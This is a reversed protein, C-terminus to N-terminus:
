KQMINTKFGYIDVSNLTMSLYKDIKVLNKKLIILKLKLFLDVYYYKYYQLRLQLFFIKNIFM